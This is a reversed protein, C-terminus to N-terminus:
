DREYSSREPLIADFASGLARRIDGYNVTECADNLCIFRRRQGTILRLTKANVHEMSCYALDRHVNAPAFRGTLKQWERLLYITIDEGSRIRNRLTRRIADPEADWVERFVSRMMPYPGHVTYFGTFRPFALELMNYALYKLPYGVRYYAWPQMRVNAIKDFHAALILSNNLMMRSMTPDDRNAVVPQFALMDRPRGERFFDEKRLPQLCFFDDNFYVFNESLGEIRHMCLEIVNSNFTPLYEAPIFDEHRVIHLKPNETDLWPPLHGWTVFHIRRVWPAFKEVGRFWYRLMDWDRYRLERGDQGNMRTYRAKEARWAPDAGDVWTVVFDIDNQRNM